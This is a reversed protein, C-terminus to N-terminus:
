GAQKIGAAKILRTWRKTEEQTYRRVEEPTMPTPELGQSMMRERSEPDALAKAIEANLRQIIAAPTRAPAFVGYWTILEFGPVTEAIPPTDAIAASRKTGGTGLLRLKGSKVHALVTPMSTFMMQVQGSILDTMAPATGKYPVHVIKTKTLSQFLEGGLHPSTGTGVSAFNLVGPKAKALAVLESVSQAPVSPHVVLVQPSMVLMAVPEFDRHPDYPVKPLMLPALFTGGGTGFLLTYGDPAGRAVLESGIITGAGPRNDVVVQQGLFQSLKQGVTRGVFDTPGGAPYPVVLRIPRVPYAQAIAAEAAILSLAVFVLVSRM